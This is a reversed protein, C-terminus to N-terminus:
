RQGHELAYLEAVTRNWDCDGQGARSPPRAGSYFALISDRLQPSVAEFKRRSLRDLLQAFAQDALPYEGARAPRGTDLDIDDLRLAGHRLDALLAKFRAVTRNFGDMFIHEVDPTPPKFSLAKFPGVKPVIRLMVALVRSFFGPREYATGWEKEYSARSITLVFKERTVGPTGETIEKEKAKWAVKTMNPIVSSVARRYTGIALDESAFLDKLPLGYIEAFARELLPKAVQFGIFDRYAQPAFHGNAVQAVDFGFETKLHAAPDEAYTVAHGFRQELEPYLLPVSRNTAAPHGVSDAAYHALAGLAFAYEDADRADHLLALVFDGTRAYHALDTFLKSGFPYYGM